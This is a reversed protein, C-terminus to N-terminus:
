RNDIIGGVSDEFYLMIGNEDYERKVWYGGNDEYYIENGNTDYEWKMWNGKSDVGYIVNGNSDYESKDWYGDSREFYIQNGNSDYERKYWEGSINDSYIVQGNRNKLIMRGHKFIVLYYKFFSKLMQEIYEEDIGLINFKYLYSPKIKDINDSLFQILDIGQGPAIEKVMLLNDETNSNILSLLQETYDDQENILRKYQSETIILKKKM